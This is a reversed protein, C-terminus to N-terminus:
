LKSVIMIMLFMVNCRINLKNDNLHLWLNKLSIIIVEKSLSHSHIESNKDIVRSTMTNAPVVMEINKKTTKSLYVAGLCWKQSM